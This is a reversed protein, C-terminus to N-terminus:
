YISRLYQIYIYLIDPQIFLDFIIKRKCELEEKYQLFSNFLSIM